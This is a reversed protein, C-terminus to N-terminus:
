VNQNKKIIVFFDKLKKSKAVEENKKGKKEVSLKKTYIKKYEGRRKKLRISQLTSDYNKYVLQTSKNM